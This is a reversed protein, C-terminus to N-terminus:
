DATGQVMELADRYLFPVWFEPAEKTGQLEFFGVEVLQQAIALADAQSIGWIEALSGPTQRTKQRTLRLLSERLAPYEALLTQELRVRSVEPLAQKIASRSFLQEGAPESETGLDLLRLQESRTANLLHILERPANQRTGDETRSLVWEFTKPQRSGVDVQDPFMQYFFARQEVTSQLVKGPDIGYLTIIADNQLARRTM